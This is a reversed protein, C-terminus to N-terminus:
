IIYEQKCQDGVPPMNFEPRNTLKTVLSYLSRCKEHKIVAKASHPSDYDEMVVDYPATYCNRGKLATPIFQENPKGIFVPVFRTNIEQDNILCNLKLKGIHADRMEIRKNTDEQLLQHLKEGCLLIIHGDCSRVEKETWQDWNNIDESASYMDINCPVGLQRLLNSLGLAPHNCDDEEPYDEKCYIIFAENGTIYYM